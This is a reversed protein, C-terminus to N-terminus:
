NLNNLHSTLNVLFTLDVFFTLILYGNKIAFNPLMQTKELFIAIKERLIHVRRLM